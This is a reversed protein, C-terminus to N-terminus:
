TILLGHVLFCKMLKVDFDIFALKILQEGVVNVLLM